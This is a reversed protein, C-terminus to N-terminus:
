KKGSDQFLELGHEIRHLVPPQPPKESSNEAEGPSVALRGLKRREIFKTKGVPFHTRATVIFRRRGARLSFPAPEHYCM